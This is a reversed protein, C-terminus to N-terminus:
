KKNNNVEHLSDSRTACEAYQAQLTTIYTVATGLSAPSDMMPIDSCRVVLNAPPAIDAIKQEPVTACGAVLVVIAAIIFKKM